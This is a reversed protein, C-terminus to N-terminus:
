PELSEISVNPNFGNERLIAQQKALRLDSAVM